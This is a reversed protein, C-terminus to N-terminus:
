ATTISPEIVGIGGGGVVVVIDRRLEGALAPAGCGGRGWWGNTAMIM